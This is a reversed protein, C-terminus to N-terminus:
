WGATPLMSILFDVNGIMGVKRDGEHSGSVLVVAPDALRPFGEPGRRRRGWGGPSQKGEETQKWYTYRRRRRM